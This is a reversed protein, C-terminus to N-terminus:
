WRKGGGSPAHFTKNPCSRALEDIFSELSNVSKTLWRLGPFATVVEEDGNMAQDLQQFRPRESPDLRWMTNIFDKLEQMFSSLMTLFKSPNM